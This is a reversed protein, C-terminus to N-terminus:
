KKGYKLKLADKQEQHVNLALDVKSEASPKFNLRVYNKFHSIFKAHTPYSLEAKKKFEPICGIVDDKSIHNVKAILEVALSNPLDDFFTKLLDNEKKNIVNDNDNDNVIVNVNDTLRTLSDKVLKPYSVPETKGYRNQMGKKGGQSKAYIRKEWDILDRKLQQKIPEFVLELLQEDMTPNLDNVYKLIHKFLKGAQPDTLKEITFMIDCYLIFGKKNTAM